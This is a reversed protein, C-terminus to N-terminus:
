PPYGPIVAARALGALVREAILQHGRANPHADVASLRLEAPTDMLDRDGCSIYALQNAECYTRLFEHDRPAVVGLRAGQASCMRAMEDLIRCYAQQSEANIGARGVEFVADLEGKAQLRTWYLHNLLQKWYLQHLWRSRFFAYFLGSRGRQQQAREGDSLARPPDDPIFVVLVLDPQLQLGYRQLYVAEHVGSYGPCGSNLVEVSPSGGAVADRVRDVFCEGDDVGLGFTVSDGLFLVRFHDAPKKATVEPGRLGLSNIRAEFSGRFHASPRLRYPLPSAAPMVAGRSPDLFRGVELHYSIGFPDTWRLTLEGLAFALASGLLGLLLRGALRRVAPKPRAPRNALM